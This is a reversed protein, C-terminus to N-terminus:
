TEIHQIADIGGRHRAVQGGGVQMRERERGVRSVYFGRVPEHAMM